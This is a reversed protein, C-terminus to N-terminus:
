HFLGPFPPHSPNFYDALAWFLILVVLGIVWTLAIKRHDWATFDWLYFYLLMYPCLVLFLWTIDM